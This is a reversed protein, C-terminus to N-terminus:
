QIEGGQELWRKIEDDTPTILIAQNTNSLDSDTLLLEYEADIGIKGMSPLIWLFASVILILAFATWATAPRPWYLSLIDWSRLRRFAVASIKEFDPDSGPLNQNRCAHGINHLLHSRTRCTDCASLHRAFLEQEESSLAGDSYRDFLRCESSM